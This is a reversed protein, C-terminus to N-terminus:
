NHFFWIMLGATFGFLSGSVVVQTILQVADSPIMHPAQHALRYVARDFRNLRARCFRDAM